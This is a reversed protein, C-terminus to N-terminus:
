CLPQYKLNQFIASTPLRVDQGEKQGKSVDFWDLVGEPLFLELVSRDIAIIMFTLTLPYAAM